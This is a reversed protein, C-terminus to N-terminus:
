IRLCFAILFFVQLKKAQKTKEVCQEAWEVNRGKEVELQETAANLRAHVLELENKLRSIANNFHKEHTLRKDHATKLLMEQYRQEQNAQYSWFSLARSCVESIVDPKQAAIVM